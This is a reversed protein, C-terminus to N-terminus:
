TVPAGDHPPDPLRVVVTGALKDHWTQRKPDWLCWAFGLGFPLLSIMYGINRVLAQLLSIRGGAVREIRLGFAMKGPTAGYRCWMWIVVVMPMAQGVILEFVSVHQDLYADFGLAASVIVAVAITFVVFDIFHAAARPLFGAYDVAM